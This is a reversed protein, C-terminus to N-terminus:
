TQEVRLDTVIGVETVKISSAAKQDQMEKVETMMGVDNLVVAMAKLSHVERVKTVMGVENTVILVCVKRPQM